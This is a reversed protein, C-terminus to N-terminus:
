RNKLKYMKKRLKVLNPDIALWQKRDLFVPRFRTTTSGKDDSSESSLDQDALPDIDMPQMNASSKTPSVPSPPRHYHAALTPTSFSSGKSATARRTKSPTEPLLMDVDDEHVTHTRAKSSQVEISKTSPEHMPPLVRALIALSVPSAREEEDAEVALKQKKPTNKSPLERIARKRPSFQVGPANSLRQSDQLIAARVKGCQSELRSIISRLRDSSGAKNKRAFSILDDSLEVQLVKCLWYFSGLRVLSQDRSVNKSDPLQLLAAQVMQCWRPFHISHKPQIQYTSALLEYSVLSSSELRTKRRGTEIVARNSADLAARVHSLCRAFDQKNLCSNGQAAARDVVGNNLEESAILACAAPLGTSLENVAYGSGQITKSQAINVLEKARKFTEGRDGCLKALQSDYRSM